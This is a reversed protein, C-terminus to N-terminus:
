IGVKRAGLSQALLEAVFRMLAPSSRAVRVLVFASVVLPVVVKGAVSAANELARFLENRGSETDTAKRRTVIVCYCNSNCSSAGIPYDNLMRDADIWGLAAWDRCNECHDAAGTVRRAELPHQEMRAALRENEYTLRGANAYSQARAAFGRSLSERGYRGREIDEAFARLGPFRDNGNWQEAVISEVRKWDQPRMQEFGGRALAAEAMHLFKTERKAGGYFEQLSIQGNQLRQTLISLRSQADRALSDSAGKVAFAEIEEGDISFTSSEDDFIAPM